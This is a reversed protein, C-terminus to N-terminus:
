PVLEALDRVVVDAGHDRLDGPDNTRAVGIVLGFGGARGAAVGALADEVVVARETPVGLERAGELFEDPAPKGKLHREAVTNGDVVREFLDRIGCAELVAVANASSSVVATRVGGDRLAKVWAVSGPYAEVGGKALEAEVLRQKRAGIGHVTFADPADGPAGEPPHIGRAALFDRVGDERPKGDVYHEYDEVADFPAQEAGGEGRQGGQAALVEDFTAKWARAHLAATSSLVGDLDFLVADFRDRTVQVPATM